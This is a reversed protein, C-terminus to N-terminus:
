NDKINQMESHYIESIVNQTEKPFRIIRIM